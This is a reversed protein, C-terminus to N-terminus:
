EKPQRYRPNYPWKSRDAGYTKIMWARAKAKDIAKFRVQFGGGAAEEVDAKISYGLRKGCRFLSRKIEAAREKTEIGTYVLEKYHGKATDVMGGQVSAMVHEHTLPQKQARWQREPGRPM